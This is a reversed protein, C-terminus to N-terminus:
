NKEMTFLSDLSSSSKFKKKTKQYKKIREKFIAELNQPAGLIRFCRQCSKVVSSERNLCKQIESSHTYIMNYLVVLNRLYDDIHIFLSSSSRNSAKPIIKPVTSVLSLFNSAQSFKEQIFDNLDFLYVEKTFTVQTMINLLIKSVLLLSRRSHNTLATKSVLQYKDPFNLVPSILRLILYGFVAIDGANVIGEFKKESALKLDHCIKRCELPLMPISNCIDNFLQDIIKKLKKMNKKQKDKDRLRDPDIELRHGSEIVREVVPKCVSAVYDKCLIHTYIRMVKSALSNLRFLSGVHITNDVEWQIVFRILNFTCDGFLYIKLLCSALQDIDVLETLIPIILFFSPSYIFQLYTNLGSYEELLDEKMLKMRSSISAKIKVFSIWKKAKLWKETQEFVNLKDTEAKQVQDSGLMPFYENACENWLIFDHRNELHMFITVDGMVLMLTCGENKPADELVENSVIEYMKLMPLTYGGFMSHDETEWRITERDVIVCCKRWGMWPLGTQSKLYSWLTLSNADSICRNLNLVLKSASHPLSPYGVENAKGASLTAGGAPRKKQLPCSSVDEKKAAPQEVLVSVSDSDIKSDLSTDAGETDQKCTETVASQSRNTIHHRPSKTSKHLAQSQVRRSRSSPESHRCSRSKTKRLKSGSVSSLPKDSETGFQTLPVRTLEAGDLPQLSAGGNFTKNQLTLSSQLYQDSGSDEPESLMSPEEPDSIRLSKKQKPATEVSLPGEKQIDTREATILSPQMNEAQSSKDLLGVNKETFASEEDLIDISGDANLPIDSDSYEVPSLVDKDQTTDSTKDDTMVSQGKDLNVDEGVSVALPVGVETSESDSITLAHLIESKANGDEVALSRKEDLVDVGNVQQLKDELAKIDGSLSPKDFYDSGEQTLDPQQKSGSESSVNLPLELLSKSLLETSGLSESETELGASRSLDIETNSERDEFLKTCEEKRVDKRAFVEGNEREFDDDRSIVSITDTTSKLDSIESDIGLMDLENKVNELEDWEGQQVDELNTDTKAREFDLINSKISDFTEDIELSDTDGTKEYEEDEEYMYEEESVYESNGGDESEARKGNMMQENSMTSYLMPEEQESKSEENEDQNVMNIEEMVTMWEGYTPKLEDAEEKMMMCLLEENSLYDELGSKQTLDSSVDNRYNTYLNKTKLMDLQEQLNLKQKSGASDSLSQKSSMSEIQMWLKEVNQVDKMMSDIKKSASAVTTEGFVCSSDSIDLDELINEATQKDSDGCDKEM